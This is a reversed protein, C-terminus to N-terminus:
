LSWSTPLKRHLLLGARISWAPSSWRDVSDFAVSWRAPDHVVGGTLTLM